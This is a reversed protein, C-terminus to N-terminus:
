RRKKTRQKSITCTGASYIGNLSTETCTRDLLMVFLAIM